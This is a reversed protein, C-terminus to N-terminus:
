ACPRLNSDQRSRWISLGGGASAPLPRTTLDIEGQARVRRWPRHEARRRPNKIKREAARATIRKIRAAVEPTLERRLFPPIELGDDM